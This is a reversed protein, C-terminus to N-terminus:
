AKQLDPGTNIKSHKWHGHPEHSPWCATRISLLCVAEWTCPALSGPVPHPTPRDVINLFTNKILDSPHPCLRLGADPGQFAQYLNGQRVFVYYVPTTGSNPTTVLLSIMGQEHLCQIQRVICSRSEEGPIKDSFDAQPITTDQM